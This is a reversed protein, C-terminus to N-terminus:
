QVRVAGARAGQPRTLRPQKLAQRLRRGTGGRRRRDALGRRHVAALNPEPQHGDPGAAAPRAPRRRLVSAQVLPLDVGPYRRRHVAPLCCQSYDLMVATTVETRPKIVRDGAPQWHSPVPRRPEHRALRGRQDADQRQAAARGETAAAARDALLGRRRQGGHM